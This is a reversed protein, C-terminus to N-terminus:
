LNNRTLVDWVDGVGSNSHCFALVIRNNGNQLKANQIAAVLGSENQHFKALDILDFQANNPGLGNLTGAQLKQVVYSDVRYFSKAAFGLESLVSRGDASGHGGTIIIFKTSSDNLIRGDMMRRQISHVWNKVGMADNFSHVHTGSPLQEESHNKLGPYNAKIWSNTCEESSSDPDPFGSRLYNLGKNMMFDELVSDAINAGISYGTFAGQVMTLVLSVPDVPRGTVESKLVAAGGQTLSHVATTAAQTLRRVMTVESM